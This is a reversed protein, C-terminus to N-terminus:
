MFVLSIQSYNFRHSTCLLLLRLMLRLMLSKSSSWCTNLIWGSVLPADVMPRVLHHEEDKEKQRLFIKHGDGQDVFPEPVEALIGAKPRLQGKVIFVDFVVGFTAPLKHVSALLQTTEVDLVGRYVEAFEVNHVHHDPSFLAQLTKLHIM